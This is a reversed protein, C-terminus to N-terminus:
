ELVCLGQRCRPVPTACHIECNERKFPTCAQEYLAEYKALAAGAVPTGCSCAGCHTRIFTCDGDSRCARDEPRIKIHVGIGVLRELAEFHGAEAAFRLHMTNGCPPAVYLDDIRRDGVVLYAEGIDFGDGWYTNRVIEIKQGAAAGKWGRTVTFEFVKLNAIGGGEAVIGAADLVAAEAHSLARRPGAVGEFIVAANKVVAEDMTPPLCSRALAAGPAYFSLVVLASAVLVSAIVCRKKVIARDRLREM